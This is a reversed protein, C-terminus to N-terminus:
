QEAFHVDVLGAVSVNGLQFVVGEMADVDSCIWLQNYSVAATISSGWRQTNPDRFWVTVNFGGAGATASGASPAKLMFTFGLTPMGSPAVPSMQFHPASVGDTPGNTVVTDATSLRNARFKVADAQSM